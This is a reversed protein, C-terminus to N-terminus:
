CRLITLKASKKTLRLPPFVWFIMTSPKRWWKKKKSQSDAFGLVLFIPIFFSSLSHLSFLQLDTLCLPLLFLCLSHLVWSCLDVKWLLFLFLSILISTPWRKKGPLLCYKLQRFALSQDIHHFKDHFSTGRGKWIIIYQERKRNPKKSHSHAVYM